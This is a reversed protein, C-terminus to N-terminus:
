AVELVREHRDRWRRIEPTILAAPPPDKPHEAKEPGSGHRKCVPLSWHFLPTIRGYCLRDLDTDDGCVFCGGPARGLDLFYSHSPPGYVRAHSAQCLCRKAQAIPWHLAGGQPWAGCPLAEVWDEVTNLLAVLDALALTEGPRKPSWTGVDDVWALAAGDAAHYIGLSDMTVGLAQAIAHGPQTQGEWPHHWVQGDPLVTETFRLTIKATGRCYRCPVSYGDEWDWHTFRGNECRGCAGRWRVYRVAAAGEVVLLMAALLKYAYIAASLGRDFGARAHANLRGLEALPLNDNM